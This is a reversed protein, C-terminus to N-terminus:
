YVKYCASGESKVTTGPEFMLNVSETKVGRLNLTYCFVDNPPETKSLWRAVLECKALGHTKPKYNDVNEKLIQSFFAVLILIPVSLPENGISTFYTSAAYAM